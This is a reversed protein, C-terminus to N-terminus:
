RLNARLAFDEDSPVRRHDVDVPDENTKRLIAHKAFSSAKVVQARLETKAVRRPPLAAIPRLSV